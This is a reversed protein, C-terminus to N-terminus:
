ELGCLARLVQQSGPVCILSFSCPERRATVVGSTNEILGARFAIGVGGPAPGPRISPGEKVAAPAGRRAKAGMM